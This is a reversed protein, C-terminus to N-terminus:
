ADWYRDGYGFSCKRVNKNRNKFKDFLEFLYLIFRFGLLVAFPLWEFILSPTRNYPMHLPLTSMALQSTQQCSRGEVFTPAEKKEIDVNKEETSEERAEDLPFSCSYTQDDNVRDSASNKFKEVPLIALRLNTGLRGRKITRGVFLQGNDVATVPHLLQTLSKSKVKLGGSFGSFGHLQANYGPEIGMKSIHAEVGMEVRGKRASASIEIERKPNTNSPNLNLDLDLDFNINFRKDRELTIRPGMAVEVRGCSCRSRCSVSVSELDPVIHQTKANKNKRRSLKEIREKTSSLEQKKQNFAETLREIESNLVPNSHLSNLENASKIFRDFVRDLEAEFPGTFDNIKESFLQELQGREVLVTTILNSEPHHKAVRPQIGINDSSKLFKKKQKRFKIEKKAQYYHKELGKYGGLSDMATQELIRQENHLEAIELKKQEDPRDSFFIENSKELMADRQSNFPEPLYDFYDSNMGLPYIYNFYDVLPKRM